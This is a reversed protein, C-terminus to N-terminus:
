DLQMGMTANSFLQTGKKEERDPHRSNGGSLAAMAVVPSTLAPLAILGHWGFCAGLGLGLVAIPIASCFLIAITRRSLGRWWVHTLGNSVKGSAIGKDSDPTRAELGDTAFRRWVLRLYVAVAGCLLGIHGGLFGMVIGMVVGAVVGMSGAPEKTAAALALSMATWTLGTTAACAVLLRDQHCNPRTLLCMAASAPGSIVFLPVVAVPGLSRVLSCAIAVLTVLALLDRMSFQFPNGREPQDFDRSTSM